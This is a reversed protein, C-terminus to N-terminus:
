AGAIPLAGEGGAESTRRAQEVLNEFWAKAGADAPIVCLDFKPRSLGVYADAVAFATGASQPAPVGCLVVAGADLGKFRGITEVLFGAGARWDALRRAPRHRGVAGVASILADRAASDVCLVAVEQPPFQHSAGLWSELRCRLEKIAATGSAAATIEPWAAIPPCQRLNDLHMEGSGVAQVCTAVERANRVNLQLEYRAFGAPINLEGAGEPGFLNQRPDCFIVRGAAQLKLLTGAQSFSLDQFEDIVLLDIRDTNGGRILKMLLEDAGSALFHDDAVRPWQVGAAAGYQDVMRRAFGHFTACKVGFKSVAAENDEALLANYCLLWVHKGRKAADCALQRAIVSKGSGAGGVIAAGKGANAMFGRVARDQEKTLKILENAVYTRQDATAPVFGFGNPILRALVGDTSCARGRAWKSLFSEILSAIEGLDGKVITFDLYGENLMALRGGASFNVCRESNPFCVGFGSPVGSDGGLRASAFEERWRHQVSSAQLWPAKKFTVWQVGDSSGQWCGDVVRHFQHSKVEIVVFGRNPIVVIIDAEGEEYQRDNDHVSWRSHIIHWDPRQRNIEEAVMREAVQGDRPSEVLNGRYIV